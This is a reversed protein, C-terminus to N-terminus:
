FPRKFVEVPNATMKEDFDALMAIADPVDDHPNKGSMTWSCLMNMAKNYEKDAVSPDRFYFHEMVYPYAMIIRTEKHATSFKTSIKTDGGRKKM